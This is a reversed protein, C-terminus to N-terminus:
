VSGELVARATRSLLAVTADKDAPGELAIQMAVGNFMAVVLRLRAEIDAPATGQGDQQRIQEVMLDVIQRQKDRAIQRIRPNRLAEASIQLHLTMRADDLLDIGLAGYFDSLGSIGDAFVGQLRELQSDLEDLVIGEVLAEKSPFIQYVLGVSGGAAAAIDGMKTVHFGAERFCLKAAELIQARRVAPEEFRKRGEAGGRAAQGRDTM